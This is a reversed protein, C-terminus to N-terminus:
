RGEFPAPFIMEMKLGREDKVPKQPIRNCRGEHYMKATLAAVIADIVDDDELGEKEYWAGIWECIKPFRAPTSLVDLRERRGERDRKKHKMARRENLAWFCVEPHVEFVKKQLSPTILCDVEHIKPTIGFTQRTMSKGCNKLSIKKAENYNDKDFGIAAIDKLVKRSPPPFVSNRRPWGLRRRAEKDCARDGKAFLGIPIDVAVMDFQHLQMAQGFSSVVKVDDIKDPQTLDIIAVCWGGKCGDIGAVKSMTGEKVVFFVSQVPSLDSGSTTWRNEDDNRIGSELGNWDM